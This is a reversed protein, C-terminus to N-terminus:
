KEINTYTYTGYPYICSTIVACVSKGIHISMFKMRRRKKTYCYVYCSGYEITALVTGRLSVSRHKFYAAIARHSFWSVICDETYDALSGM